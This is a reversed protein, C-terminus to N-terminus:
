RAVQGTPMGFFAVDMWHRFIPPADPRPRPTDDPTLHVRIGPPLPPDARFGRVKARAVFAEVAQANDVYEITAGENNAGTESPLRRALGLKLCERILKYGCNDSCSLLEQVDFSTIPRSRLLEVLGRLEEQTIPKAM